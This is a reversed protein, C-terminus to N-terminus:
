GRSSEDEKSEKVLAEATLPRDQLESHKLKTFLIFVL